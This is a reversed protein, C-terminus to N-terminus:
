GRPSLTRVLKRAVRLVSEDTTLRDIEALPAWRAAVVEDNTTFGLTPAQFFFRVDFHEHEPEDRRAPIRHIDLDFVAGEASAPLALGVEEAVERRAAAALSEDSPEIHGGPQLWLGLKKHLILLLADRAPSLVFASATLHGPSFHSRSTPAAMALLQLMREQFGRERPDDPQYGAIAARASELIVLGQEDFYGSGCVCKM